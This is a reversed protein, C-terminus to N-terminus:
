IPQDPRSGQELAIGVKLPVDGGQPRGEVEGTVTDGHGVPVVGDARIVDVELVAGNQAAQEDLEQLPRALHLDSGGIRFARGPPRAFNATFNFKAM